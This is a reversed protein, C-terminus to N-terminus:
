KGEKTNAEDAVIFGWSKQLLLAAIPLDDRGFSTTNKFQNGDKYTRRLTVKYFPAQGKTKTQNCFVSASLGSTRFVRVPRNKSGEMTISPFLFLLSSQRIGDALM